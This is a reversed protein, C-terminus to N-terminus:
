CIKKDLNLFENIQELANNRKGYKGHFSLHCKECLTIGNDVEYRVDENDKWNKIHHAVLKVTHGIRNKDGCCQCAYLDRDFVGKRWSRYEYSSREVRHYEVGGKWTPSLEKKHQSSYIAGYNEVGYKKLCTETGKARIEPNQTPVEVGYKKLNTQRIKAQIQKSAFINEVGYKKLNTAKAKAKIEDLQLTCSVGYKIMLSEKSKVAVCKPNSCCDKICGDKDKSAVYKYWEVNSIKKCGQENFDCKVEVKINSGNKLDNVDVFFSDKMKTYKYGRSEYHAKNKSNWKMEVCKTLLM